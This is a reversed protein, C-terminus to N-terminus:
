SRPAKPPAGNALENALAGAAGSVSLAPNKACWQTVYGAIGDHNFQGPNPGFLPRQEKKKVYLAAAGSAEAFGWAYFEFHLPVTVSSALWDSCSIDAKAHPAFAVLAALISRQM